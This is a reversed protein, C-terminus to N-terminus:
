EQLQSKAFMLAEFLEVDAGGFSLPDDCESEQQSVRAKLRQYNDVAEKLLNNKM